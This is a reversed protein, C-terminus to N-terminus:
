PREGRRPKATSKKIFDVYVRSKGRAGCLKKSQGKGLDWTEDGGINFFGSTFNPLLEDYLGRL